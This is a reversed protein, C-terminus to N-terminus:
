PEHVLMAVLEGLDQFSSRAHRRRCHSVDMPTGRTWMPFITQVAIHRSVILSDESIANFHSSYLGNWKEAITSWAHRRRLVSGWQVPVELLDSLAAQFRKNGLLLLIHYLVRLNRLTGMFLPIYDSRQGFMTIGFLICDNQTKCLDIYGLNEYDAAHRVDYGPWKIQQHRLTCFQWCRRHSLNYWL